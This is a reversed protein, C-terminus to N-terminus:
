FKDVVVWQNRQLQCIIGDYTKMGGHFQTDLFWRCKHGNDYFVSTYTPHPRYQDLRAVTGVESTKITQLKEDDSCVLDHEVITNNASVRAILNQEAQKVARGCANSTPLDSYVYEGFTVHWENGIKAKYNVICKRQDSSFPVVERTIASREQITGVSRSHVREQLVCEAYSVNSVLAIIFLKNMLVKWM